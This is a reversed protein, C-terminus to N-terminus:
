KTTRQVQKLKRDKKVARKEDRATRLNVSKLFRNFLLEYDTRDAEGSDFLELYKDYGNENSLFSLITQKFLEAQHEFTKEFIESYERQNIKTGEIIGYNLYFNCSIIEKQSDYVFIGVVDVGHKEYIRKRLCAWIKGLPDFSHDRPIVIGNVLITGISTSNKVSFAIQDVNM